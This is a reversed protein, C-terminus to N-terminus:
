RKQRLTSALGFAVLMAFLILTLWGFLHGGRNYLTTIARTPVQAIMTRDATAYDLQALVRGFPDAVISLAGDTQRVISLGNEIARFVAMHAHIPDIEHWDSSPVLLLSVGAAGAQRIVEPFDADWCIVGAIRGYPTDVTRLRADGKLTGEMFNGGFKVHEIANGGSPDVILLKNENRKDPEDRITFLPVTLYIKEESAVRSAQEILAREDTAAGIGSIEPWVVIRAGARAERVSADFYASRVRRVEADREAPAPMAASWRQTIVRIPEATIGAVRVTESALPASALRMAGYALVGVFACAFLTVTTATERARGDRISDWVWNALSAFWGMLFTVGVLGTVSVWQMLALNGYQSYATAGWSGVPNALLSVFELGSAALPFVLTSLGGGIRPALVRHFVYPLTAFLGLAIWFPVILGLPFVRWWGIVQAGICAVLLPIFGRLPSRSQYFRIFLAPGLWAALPASWRGGSFGVLLTASTLLAVGSFRKLTAV